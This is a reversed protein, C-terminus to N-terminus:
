ENSFRNQGSRDFSFPAVDRQIKRIKARTAGNTLCWVCIAKLYQYGWKRIEAVSSNYPRDYGRNLTWYSKYSRLVPNITRFGDKVKQLYEKQLRTTPIFHQFELREDYWLHYGAIRSAITARM